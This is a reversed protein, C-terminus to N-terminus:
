TGLAALLDESRGSKLVASDAGARIAAALAVDDSSYAVLRMQRPCERLLSILEVGSMDPLHVDVIAIDPVEDRILALAEGGTGAEGVLEVVDNDALMLRALLRLDPEDDVVVARLM